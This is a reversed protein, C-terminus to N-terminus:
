IISPELHLPLLAKYQSKFLTQGTLLTVSNEKMLFDRKNDSILKKLLLLANISFLFVKYM